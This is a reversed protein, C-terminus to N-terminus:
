VGHLTLFSALSGEVVGIGLPLFSAVGLIISTTYLTAMRFFEFQNVEFSLLVFYAITAEILWFAMSLLSAKVFIKGRTSNIIVDHSNSLGEAYTSLFKIKTLKNLFRLFIKKSSILVFITFLLISM